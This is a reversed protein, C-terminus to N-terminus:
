ITDFMSRTPIKGLSCPRSDVHGLPPATDIGKVRVRYNYIANAPATSATADDKPTVNYWYLVEMVSCRTRAGIRKITCHCREVIGNSSPVSACRFRLQISWNEASRGFEEGSFAAGNDTLLEAPPERESFVSELKRTISAVNQHQLPCWISFKSPGCDILTLYHQDEYHTIDMGVRRWNERVDLKGVKWHVSAPDRSQCRECARVVTRIAAKSVAPIVQRVFYLTWRVGPHGSRQHIARIRTSEQGEMSAACMPETEKRLVDLLRQPVRILKDARNAQSRVLEMDVTLKYEVVLEKITSLRRRILRELAAKTRIRAKRSLADSVWRHVCAFDTKLNLGTAKWQLALNIGRLM